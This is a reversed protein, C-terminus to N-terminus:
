RERWYQSHELGLKLLDTTSMLTTGAERYEVCPFEGCWCSARLCRDCVVVDFRKRRRM